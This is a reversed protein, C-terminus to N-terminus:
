IDQRPLGIDRCVKRSFERRLVPRHGHSGNVTGHHSVDMALNIIGCASIGSVTVWASLRDPFNM